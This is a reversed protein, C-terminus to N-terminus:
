SVPLCRTMRYRSPFIAVILCFLVGKQRCQWIGRPSGGRKQWILHRHMRFARHNSAAFRAPGIGVFLRVGGAGIVFPFPQERRGERRWVCNTRKKPIPSITFHVATGPNRAANSGPTILQSRSTPCNICRVTSAFPTNISLVCRRGTDVWVVHVDMNM